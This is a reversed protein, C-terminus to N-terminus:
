VQALYIQSGMGGGPCYGAQMNPMHPGPDAHALSDFGYVLVAMLVFMAAIVVILLLADLARHGTSLVKIEM